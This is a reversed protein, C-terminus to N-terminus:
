LKAQGSVVRKHEAAHFPKYSHGDLWLMEDKIVTPDIGENVLEVKRQKFTGTIEIEPTKRIFIPVSYRPLNKLAYAAFQDWNMTQKAVIAAMGARGDHGPIQVGYVNVEICDPYQSLVESVEATSVNESKWRFTDGVRDGFYFYGDADRRLIDGTRFYKDGSTFVNTIIKKNTAGNNQHYGKFDRTPEASDILTLLEGPEGVKCEICYGNKDRILEETQVDFKAIKLGKDLLRALVGRHGIAGAGAPGTNYNSLAGTGETSAYWEGIVPIAFRDRFRNWVDPRMGNGHALRIKHAKDLPHEPANLLYRCIEGIYQIVTVDNKRCDEWFHTASFKRALIVTSGNSWAVCMGLVAGASHYLPLAIYIRDSESFNYLRGWVLSGMTARSHSFRGAKPLGTTGSTYILMAIEDTTTKRRLYEPTPADSVQTLDLPTAFDFQEPGGYSYISYGMQQIEDLSGAIQSALETDMILMAASATKLSHTLPKGALNTNIFAGTAGIKNIGLWAFIFEPKNLMFLSVIDGRKVGKSLLWNGIKNSAHNIERYTYSRGEFILAVRDPYKQYSGDFRHTLNITDNKEVAGYAIKSGILGKIMRGDQPLGLKSSAYMAVPVAAAILPLGTKTSPVNLFSSVSSAHRKLM